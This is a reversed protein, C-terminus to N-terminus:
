LDIEMWLADRAQILLAAGEHVQMWALCHTACAHEVGDILVTATATNAYLAIIKPSRITISLETTVRQMRALRGKKVMLNFDLTTGGMLRCITQAEGSFKLPLDSPRLPHLDGDVMLVVGDGQLVAFWRQIGAFNSFPGSQVVEAVSARWLWASSDPWAVLERTTGGGNRWPTPVVDSLCVM